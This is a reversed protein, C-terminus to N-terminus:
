EDDLEDAGEVGDVPAVGEELVDSVPEAVLELLGAEDKGTAGFQSGCNPPDPNSGVSRKM